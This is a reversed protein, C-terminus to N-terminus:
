QESLPTQNTSETGGSNKCNIAHFSLFKCSPYPTFNLNINLVTSTKVLCSNQDKSVLLAKREKHQLSKLWKVPCNSKLNIIIMTPKRLLVKFVLYILPKLHLRNLSKNIGKLSQFSTSKTKTHSYIFLHNLSKNIGKLSQFM